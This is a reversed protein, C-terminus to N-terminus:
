IIQNTDLGSALGTFLIGNTNLGSAGVASLSCM